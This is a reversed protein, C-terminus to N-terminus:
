VLCSKLCSEKVPGETTPLCWPSLCYSLLGTYEVTSCLIVHLLSFLIFCVPLISIYFPYHSSIFFLTWYIRFPTLSFPLLYTSSLTNWLSPSWTHFPLWILCLPSPPLFHRSDAMTRARLWLRPNGYLVCCHHKPPQPISKPQSTWGILIASTSESCSLLGLLQSPFSTSHMRAWPGQRQHDSLLIMQCPQGEGARRYRFIFKLAWQM